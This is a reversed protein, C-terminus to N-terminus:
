SASGPMSFNNSLGVLTTIFDSAEEALMNVHTRMVTHAEESNSSEIARVIADHQEVSKQMRGPQYTIYHRYPNVRRRLSHAEEILFQSRAASFILDHFENNAKFFGEHDNQEIRDRCRDHAQRLQALEESTIRRAALRAALGELEAMVQFMEILETITHQKVIAGHHRRMQILGSSALHWLAERVPTRSVKFRVALEQEDLRVGPPLKGSLIDDELQRVLDESRSLKRPAGEPKHKKRAIVKTARKSIRAPVARSM